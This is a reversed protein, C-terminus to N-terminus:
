LDYSNLLLLDSSGDPYVAWGFNVQRDSALDIRAHLTLFFNSYGTDQGNWDPYHVFSCPEQGYDYYHRVTGDRNDQTIRVPDYKGGVDELAGCGQSTWVHVESITVGDGDNQKHWAIYGCTSINRYVVCKTPTTYTTVAQAPSSTVAVSGLLTAALVALGAILKRLATM